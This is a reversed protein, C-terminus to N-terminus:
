VNQWHPARKEQFALIGESADPHPLVETLYAREVADIQSGWSMRAQEHFLGAIMGLVAPSKDALRAFESALAVDLEGKAAVADILGWQVLTDIPLPTGTTIFQIARAAGCRAALLPIAVPPYCGVKIEPFAFKATEDVLLRDCAFALEAAGGLCAGHVAAITFARLSLLEHFIRHFAPLLTPMLAPTHEAIDVGSSFARGEGRLVVVRAWDRERIAGLASSLEICTATDLVNLPPRNIVITTVPLNDITSDTVQLPM